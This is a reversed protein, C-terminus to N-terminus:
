TVSNRTSRRWPFRVARCGAREARRLAVFQDITKTRIRDVRDPKILKAFHKLADVTVRQTEPDVRAALDAEYEDAFPKWKKRSEGQYTGAALQGEVKRAFKEALSRCGIRKSRKKGDPDFWGVSWPCKDGRKQKQRTDQFLWAKM